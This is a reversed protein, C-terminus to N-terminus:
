CPSHHQSETDARIDRKGHAWQPTRDRQADLVAPDFVMELDIGDGSPTFFLVLAFTYFADAGDIAVDYSATRIAEQANIDTDPPMVAILTQFKCAARTDSDILSVGKMGIHQFPAMDAIDRQINELLQGVLQQRRNMQIRIPIPTITPGVMQELGNVPGNRGTLTAGFIVDESGTLRSIILAWSAHIIAQFNVGSRANPRLTRRFTEIPHVQYTKSPLSPYLSSSEAGALRSRWFQTAVDFDQSNLYNVFHNFAPPRLLSQNRYAKRLQDEIIQVSWGDYLAHHITWVIKPVNGEHIAAWQALPTGIDAQAQKEALYVQLSSCSDWHHGKVVVQQLSLGELDVIRTRLIENLQIVTDWSKILKQFDIHEPVEFISRRMYARPQKMTLAFLEIQLPTCPYIDEILDLSVGCIAAARARVQDPDSTKLLSFPAQSSPSSRIPKITLAMASLQPKMLVSGVTLETGHKRALASLKMASISDGGVDLFNSDQNFPMAGQGLATAWLKQLLTESETLPGYLDESTAVGEKAISQQLLEPGIRRLERRNLKGAPTTPVEQILFFAEPIMYHPLKESLHKRAGSFELAGPTLGPKCFAALMQRGLKHTIVECVVAAVQPMALKLHYEIEGLDLRQGRLKLQFDARGIYEITGDFSYRVL